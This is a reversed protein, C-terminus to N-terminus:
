VLVGSIPGVVLMPLFQLAVALGVAAPSGTLQLVLWDQALRQMWVGASGVLSLVVFIRYNHHRLPYHWTETSPARSAGPGTSPSRRAFPRPLFPRPSVPPDARNPEIKPLTQVAM